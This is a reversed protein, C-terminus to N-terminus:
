RMMMNRGMKERREKVLGGKRPNGGSTKEKEEEIGSFNLRVHFFTEKKKPTVHQNSRERRALHHTLLNVSSTPEM